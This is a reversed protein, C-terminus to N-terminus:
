ASGHIQRDRHCQNAQHLLRLVALNDDRWREAAADGINWTFDTHIPSAPDRAAEVIRRPDIHGDADALARVFDAKEKSLM